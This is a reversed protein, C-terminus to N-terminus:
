ESVSFKERLFAKRAAFRSSLSVAYDLSVTFNPFISKGPTDDSDMRLAYLADVSKGIEAFSLIEDLDKQSPFDNGDAFSDSSLAYVFSEAHQTIMSAIEDEMYKILADWEYDLVGAVGSDAITNVGLICRSVFPLFSADTMSSTGARMAQGMDWLEYGLRYISNRVEAFANFAYQVSVFAARASEVDNLRLADTFSRVTDQLVDELAKYAAIKADVYSLASRVPITVSPDTHDRFFDDRYMFFGSQTKDVAGRYNGSHAADASEQLIALLQKRYMTFQAASRANHIFALQQETPNKKLSELKAIIELIKRGNEPETEIADILQL